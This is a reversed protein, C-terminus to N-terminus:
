NTIDINSYHVWIGKEFKLGDYTFDPGYFQYNGALAPKQPSLHDFVIMKKENNFRLTMSAKENYEFELRDIIKGEYQILEECFYIQDFQDISFIEVVKKNSLMDNLNFGLLTYYIQGAHKNEIAQYYLAGEWNQNLKYLHPDPMNNLDIIRYKNDLKSYYQIIGYYIIKNPSEPINWTYIRVNKGSSYIKGINKLSDFPYEFSNDTKLVEMFHNFFSDAKDKKKFLHVSLIQAYEDVLENEYQSLIDSDQSYLSILSIFIFVPIFILLKYVKNM